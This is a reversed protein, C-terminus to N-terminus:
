HARKEGPKRAIKAGGGKVIQVEGPKMVFREDAAQKEERVSERGERFRQVVRRFRGRQQTM